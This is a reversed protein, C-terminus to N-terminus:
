SGQPPLSTSVPSGDRTKLSYAVHVTDPHGPAVKLSASELSLNVKLVGAKEIKDLPVKLTYLTSMTDLVRYGGIVRVREPVLRAQTMMLHGGLRGVWDVQVPLVKEIPVDLTVEVVAPDVKKLRVGPPLAISDATIAFTNKGAVADALDLRIKVQEPRLSKILPGSASLDLDIANVSTEVLEMGQDRNMYEVPVKITTLAELGRSFSFWVGVVFLISIMAATALEIRGRRWGDADGGSLGARIKLRGALAGPTDVPTLRDRDAILVEGREESVVVVVSDTSEALGAAARHRTGFHSPLDERRTLPLIVGVQAIRDGDLVAAGDHVPSGPQFISLLMERSLRGDLSVGGQTKEELDDKGPFVLLAGTMERAMEFVTDSVVTVPIPASKHQVGWLLARLNRAQLVTRIENRFVIIIVLAAAAIIGQLAWSTIILGLAVSVRQLVWLLGIGAIVRIVHTGRFLVYLRFLIYSVLGIDVLDQWRLGMMWALPTDM